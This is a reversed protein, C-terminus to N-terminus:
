VAQVWPLWLATGYGPGHFEPEVFDRATVGVVEFDAGSATRVSLSSGPLSM